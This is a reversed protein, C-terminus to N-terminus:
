PGWPRKEEYLPFLGRSAVSKRVRGRITVFGCTLLPTDSFDACWKAEFTLAGKPIIRVPIRVVGAGGNVTSPMSLLYSLHHVFGLHGFKGLGLVPSAESPLQNRRMGRGRQWESTRHQRATWGLM